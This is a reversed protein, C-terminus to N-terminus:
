VAQGVDKTAEATLAAQGLLVDVLRHLLDAAGQELRVDVELDGLVEDGCDALARDALVDEAGERRSLGRDADDVVLQDVDEAALALGELHRLLRGLDQHQDAEVAGALRGVGGLQREVQALLPAVREQDGGVDVARRGDRLQL